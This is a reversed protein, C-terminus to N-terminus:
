HLCAGGEPKPSIAQIPTYETIATGAPVGRNVPGAICYYLKTKNVVTAKLETPFERGEGEPILIPQGAPTALCVYGATCAYQGPDYDGARAPPTTLALAATTAAAAAALTRTPPRM